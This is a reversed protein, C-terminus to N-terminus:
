PFSVAATTLMPIPQGNFLVPDFRWQRVCELAAEDLLPIGRVIRADTVSGDRAISFEVLVTGRVNARQAAEPWLPRADHVKRIPGPRARIAIEESEALAQLSESKVRRDDSIRLTIHPTLRWSEDNSLWNSLQFLSIISRLHEEVNRSQTSVEQRLSQSNTWIVTAFTTEPLPVAEYRTRVLANVYQIRDRDSPKASDTRNLPPITAPNRVARSYYVTDPGTSFITAGPQAPVFSYHALPPFGPVGLAYNPGSEVGGGLGSGIGRTPDDTVHLELTLRLNELLRVAFGPPTSKLLLNAIGKWEFGGTVSLRELLLADRDGSANNLLILTPIPWRALSAGLADAQLHADLEVLADLIALETARQENSGPGFGRRLDDTLLPIASVVRHQSAFFAGWAVDKADTSQLLRNVTATVEVFSPPPQADARGGGWTLLFMGISLSATLRTTHRVIPPHM